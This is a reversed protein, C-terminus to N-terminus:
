YDVSTGHRMLAFYQLVGDFVATHGDGPNHILKADCTRSDVTFKLIICKIGAKYSPNPLNYIVIEGM